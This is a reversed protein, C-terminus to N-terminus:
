FRVYWIVFTVLGSIIVVVLVVGITIPYGVELSGATGRLQETPAVPVTPRPANTVPSTTTPLPPPTSTPSTSTPSSVNWNEPAGSGSNSTPSGSNGSDSGGSPAWTVSPRSSSTEPSPTVGECAEWWIKPAPPFGLADMDAPDQHELM